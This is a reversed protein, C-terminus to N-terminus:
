DYCIDVSNQADYTCFFKDMTTTFFGEFGTQMLTGAGSSIVRGGGVVDSRVTGATVTADRTLLTKSTFELRGVWPAAPPTAPPPQNSVPVRKIQLTGPELAYTLPNATPQIDTGGALLLNALIQRGAINSEVSFTVTGSAMLPDWDVTAAPRVPGRQIRCSGDTGKATKIEICGFYLAEGTDVTAGVIVGGYLNYGAQNFPITNHIPRYVDFGQLRGAVVKATGGSIALNATFIRGVAFTSNLTGASGPQGVLALSGALLLATPPLRKRM